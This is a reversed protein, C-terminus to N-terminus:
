FSLLSYCVPGGSSLVGGVGGWGGGTFGGWPDGRLKRHSDVCM